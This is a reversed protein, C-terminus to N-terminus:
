YRIIIKILYVSLAHHIENVDDLQPYPCLYYSIKDMFFLLSLNLESIPFFFLLKILLFYNNNFICKGDMGSFNHKLVM